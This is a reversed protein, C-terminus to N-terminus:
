QVELIASYSIDLKHKELWAIDKDISPAVLEDLIHFGAQEILQRIETINHFHYIHDIAPSNACTTIFLRSHTHMQKGLSHLISLPDPVHELVEGMTIFDYQKDTTYEMIDAHILRIDTMRSPQLCQIIDTTIGLSIKSIDVIDLQTFSQVHNLMALTYLGHGSGVELLNHQAPLQQVYRRYFCFIDYHHSWLFQSLALGLMYQTMIKPNNYVNDIAQQQSIVPYHGTRVFEMRAHMTQILMDLYAQALDVYTIGQQEMFIQYTDLFETLEKEMEPRKAFTISISKQQTPMKQYIYELIKAKM